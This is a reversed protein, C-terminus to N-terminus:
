PSKEPRSAAIGNAFENATREGSTRHPRSENHERRSAEISEKVEALTGFWHTDLCEARLTGNFTKSTFTDWLDM